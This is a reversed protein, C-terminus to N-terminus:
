EVGGGCIKEIEALRYENLKGSFLGVNEKLKQESLEWWKCNLLREIFTDSFRKKIPKAPCGAVITYPEVDKTVVSNAGVVAGDGITIGRNICVGTAIWVDNGIVVPDSYLDFGGSEDDIIEFDHCSVFGHITANEYGHAAGGISVSWSIACFAGIESKFITTDHMTSTYRGIRSDSILNGRQIIVHEAIDCNFLRSRDGVTVYDGINCGRLHTDKYVKATNAAVTDIFIASKDLYM